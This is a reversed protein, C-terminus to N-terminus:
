VCTLHLWFHNKEGRLIFFKWLFKYMLVPRLWIDVVKSEGVGCAYSEAFLSLNNVSTAVLEFRAQSLNMATWSNSTANYIDVTQSCIGKSIDLGGAFFALNGTSTAKLERRPSSLTASSWTNSTANYIDIIDSDVPGL